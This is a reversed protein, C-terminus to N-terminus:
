PGKSRKGLENSGTSNERPPIHEKQTLSLKSPHHILSATELVIYQPMYIYTRLNGENPM